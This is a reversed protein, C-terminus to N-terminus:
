VRRLTGYQFEPRLWWEPNEEMFFIWAEYSMGGKITNCQRCCWVKRTGGM